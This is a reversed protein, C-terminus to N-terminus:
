RGVGSLNSIFCVLGESCGVYLFAVPMWFELIGCIASQSPQSRRLETQHKFLLNEKRM